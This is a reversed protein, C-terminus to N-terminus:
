AKERAQCKIAADCWEDLSKPWDTTDDTDGGFAAVVVEHAIDADRLIRYRAADKTDQDNAGKAKARWYDRAERAAEFRKTIDTLRGIARRMAEDRTPCPKNSVDEGKLDRHTEAM